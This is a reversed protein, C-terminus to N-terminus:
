RNVTGEDQELAALREQLHRIQARLRDAEDQQQPEALLDDLHGSLQHAQNAATRLRNTTATIEQHLPDKSLVLDLTTMRRPKGARPVTELNTMM